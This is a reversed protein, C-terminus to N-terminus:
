RYVNLIVVGFTVLATGLVLRLSIRDAKKLFIWSLIVVLVPQINRIAVAQWVPMLTFSILLSYAGVFSVIGAGSYCYLSKRSIRKLHKFNRSKVLCVMTIIIFPTAQFVLYATNPTAGLNLAAARGIQSFSVCLGALLAIIGGALKTKEFCMVTGEHGHYGVVIIGGVITLVSFIGTLDPIEGLLVVAFLTTFLPNAGGWLASAHSAGIQAIATTFLLAGILPGLIGALILLLVEILSLYKFEQIINFGLFTAICVAVLFSILATLSIVLRIDWVSGPYEEILGKRILINDVTFSVAALM